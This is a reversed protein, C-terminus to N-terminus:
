SVDTVDGSRGTQNRDSKPTVVLFACFFEKCGQETFFPSPIEPFRGDYSVDEM